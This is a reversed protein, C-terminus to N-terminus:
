LNNVLYAYVFDADNVSDFNITYDLSKDKLSIARESGFRCTISNIGHTVADKGPADVCVRRVGELAADCYGEASFKDLAGAPLATWDFKVTLGSGCTKNTFAIDKALEAEQRTQIKRIKLSQAHTSYAGVIALTVAIAICHTATKMPPRQKAPVSVGPRFGSLLIGSRERRLPRGVAEQVWTPQQPRCQPHDHVGDRAAPAKAFHLASCSDSQHRFQSVIMPCEDDM